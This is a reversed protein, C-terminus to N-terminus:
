EANNESWYLCENIMKKVGDKLDFPSMKSDKPLFKKEKDYLYGVKIPVCSKENFKECVSKLTDEDVDEDFAIIVEKPYLSKILRKQVESIAKTGVAVVNNIGFSDAIMPSKEAEAIYIRGGVLNNYNQSLGFVACSKYFPVLTLYKPENGCDDVNLRGTVGILEGISNRWPITIRLSEVDYGINFKKQTELSIGDRLFRKNPLNSYYELLSEPYTTVECAHLFNSKINKFCGEFPLKRQKFKLGDINLTKCIHRIAEHFGVELKDQVLSIIDGKKDNKYDRYYLTETDLQIETRNESGKNACRIENRSPNFYFDTLGLSQIIKEVYEPKNSIYEKLDKLDM